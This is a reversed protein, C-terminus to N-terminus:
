LKPPIIALSVSNSELPPNEPDLQGIFIM